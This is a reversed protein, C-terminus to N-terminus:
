FAKNIKGTERRFFTNFVFNGSDLLFSNFLCFTIKSFVPLSTSITWSPSSAKCVREMHFAVTFPITVLQEVGHCSSFKLCYYFYKYSKAPYAMIPIIVWHKMIYIPMSVPQLSLAHLCSRWSCFLYCNMKFPNGPVQGIVKSIVVLM